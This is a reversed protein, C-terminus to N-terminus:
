IRNPGIIGVTKVFREFRDASHDMFLCHLVTVRILINQDDKGQWSCSYDEFNMWVKLKPVGDRGIKLEVVDPPELKVTSIEDSEKLFLRLLNMSAGWHTSAGSTIIWRSDKENEDQNNSTLAKLPDPLFSVVCGMPGAIKMTGNEISAKASYINPPCM